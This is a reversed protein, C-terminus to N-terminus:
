VINKLLHLGTTLLDSHKCHYLQFAIVTLLHERHLSQQLRKVRQM